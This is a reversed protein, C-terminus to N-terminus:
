YVVFGLGVRTLSNPQREPAGAACSCASARWGALAAASPEPVVTFNVQGPTATDISFYGAGLTPMNQIDLNNNVLSGTYDFLRWSGSTVSTFNTFMSRDLIGDLTLNGGVTALYECRRGSASELRQIGM